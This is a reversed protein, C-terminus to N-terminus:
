KQSAKSAERRDKDDMDKLAKSFASVPHVEAHALRQRVNGTVENFTWYGNPQIEGAWRKKM